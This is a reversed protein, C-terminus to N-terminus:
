QLIFYALTRQLGIIDVGRKLERELKYERVWIKIESDRDFTGVTEVSFHTISKYPITLYEVKKGTMGQKDVLILRKDTFVFMDRFVKFALKVEEEPILVGELQKQTTKPNIESANGLLNDLM